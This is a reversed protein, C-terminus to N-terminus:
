DYDMPKMTDYGKLNRRVERPVFIGFEKEFQAFWTGIVRTAFESRSTVGNKKAIDTKIFRDIAEGM